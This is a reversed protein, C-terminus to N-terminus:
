KFKIYNSLYDNFYKTFKDKDQVAPDCNITGDKNVGTITTKLAQSYEITKGELQKLLDIKPNEPLNDNLDFINM